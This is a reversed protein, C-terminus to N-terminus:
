ALLEALSGIAEGFPIIDIGDEHLRHSGGYLLTARSIPYDARFARLGRLDAPRVSRSRKVEFARIGREGYLVFDVKRNSRTRWYYLHYGAREYDNTARLQQMLLTELAAGDIDAPSDLPGKPRITRFVGTDFLFFKPHAVTARKARKTSPPIRVALLLDELLAFYEAVLRREIGCERAVASLNLVNAQSFSATELFRMFAPLNRTLGEQQVEERLYTTVYSALYDAPDSSVYVTPLCGFKLSHELSFSEGLEQATFPHLYRTRARGALLNVGGSRLKRASSGTM